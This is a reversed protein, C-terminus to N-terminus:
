RLCLEGQKAGLAEGRRDVRLLAGDESYKDRSLNFRELIEGGAIRAALELDHTIKDLHIMFGYELSIDVCNITAISLDDSVRVLWNRNPYTTQLVRGMRNAIADKAIARQAEAQSRVIELM